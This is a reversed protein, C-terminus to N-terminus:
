VNLKDPVPLHLLVDESVQANRAGGDKTVVIACRWGEYLYHRKVEVNHTHDRCSSDGGKPMSPHAGLVALLVEEPVRKSLVTRPCSQLRLVAARARHLRVRAQSSGLIVQNPPRDQGRAASAM